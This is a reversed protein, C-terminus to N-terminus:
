KICGPFMLKILGLLKLPKDLEMMEDQLVWGSPDFLYTRGDEQKYLHITDCFPCDSLYYQIM